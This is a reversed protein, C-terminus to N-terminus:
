MLFGELFADTNTSGTQSKASGVSSNKNSANKQKGELQLKLQEIEKQNQIEKQDYEYKQMAEVPNYGKAIMENVEKPVETVNPYMNIFRQIEQEQQQKQQAQMQNHQMSARQIMQQRQSELKNKAYEKAIEESAGNEMAHNIMQSEIQTNVNTILEDVTVGYMNALEQVKQFQPVIQNLQQKYTDRTSKVREYDLGMQALNNLDEKKVKVKESLHTLEVFDDSNTATNNTNNGDDSNDGEGNTQNDEESTQTSNDEDNANTGDSASTQEGETTNKEEINKTDELNTEDGTVEFEIELEEDFM